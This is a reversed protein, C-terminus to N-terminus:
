EAAAAEASVLLRHMDVFPGETLAERLDQWDPDEVIEEYLASPVELTELVRGAAVDIWALHLMGPAVGVLRLETDDALPPKPAARLLRCKLLELTVDDLLQDACLLKERLAAWGFTVRPQIEAGIRRAPRPAANGLALDFIRRAQTELDMWRALDEAPQVLIWQHRRIDLYTMQPDLRLSKGCSPCAQVQFSGDLIAARLDPRRDANLSGAAEFPITAKCAPCTLSETEFLSM